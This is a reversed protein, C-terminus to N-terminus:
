QHGEKLGKFVQKLETSDIIPPEEGGELTSAQLADLFIECYIFEEGEVEKLDNLLPKDLALIAKSKLGRLEPSYPKITKM